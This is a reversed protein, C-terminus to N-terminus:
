KSILFFEIDKCFRLVIVPLTLFLILLMVIILLYICTVFSDLARRTLFYPTVFFVTHSARDNMVLFSLDWPM